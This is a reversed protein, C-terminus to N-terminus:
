LSREIKKLAQHPYARVNCRLLYGKGCIEIAQCLLHRTVFAGGGHELMLHASRFFEVGQEFFANAYMERACDSWGSADSFDIIDISFDAM